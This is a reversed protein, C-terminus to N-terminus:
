RMYKIFAQFLSYYFLHTVSYILKRGGTNTPYNRICKKQLMAKTGNYVWGSDFVCVANRSCLGFKVQLIWKTETFINGLLRQRDCFGDIASPTRHCKWRWLLFIRFSFIVGYVNQNCFRISSAKRPRICIDFPIAQTVTVEVAFLSLLFCTENTFNFAFVTEMLYRSLINQEGTSSLRQCIERTFACM